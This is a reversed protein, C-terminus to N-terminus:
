VIEVLSPCIHVSSNKGNSVTIINGFDIKISPNENKASVLKFKSELDEKSISGFYSVSSGSISWNATLEVEVGKVRIKMKDPNEKTVRDWVSLVDEYSSGAHGLYESSKRDGVYDIEPNVIQNKKGSRLNKIQTKMITKKITKIIFCIYLM